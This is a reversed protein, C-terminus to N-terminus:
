NNKANVIQQNLSVIQMACVQQNESVDNLDDNKAAKQFHLIDGPPWRPFQIGIDFIVNNFDYIHNHLNSENKLPM